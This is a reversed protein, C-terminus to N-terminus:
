KIYRLQVALRSVELVVEEFTWYTLTKLYEEDQYKETNRKEPDYDYLHGFDIGIGIIGATCIGGHIDIINHKDNFNYMPHDEDLMVYANYVNNRSLKCKYGTLPEIFQYEMYRKTASIHTDPHKILDNQYQDFHTTM